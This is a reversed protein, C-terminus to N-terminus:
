RSQLPLTRGPELPLVDTGKLLAAKQADYMGKPSSHIAMAFRAKVLDACRRAELGDMNYFGDTPFLAYDIKLAALAAMEPLLSTDGAHYVTVGDLSIVYGVCVERKHNANCAPVVRVQAPGASFLDGEKVVRSPGPVAGAPAVIVGGPKLTVLGIQNHDQHGHTVLVLDAPESYDGPAYPDIYVVFGGAGALKVSARGFYTLEPAKGQAPLGLLLLLAFPTFMM